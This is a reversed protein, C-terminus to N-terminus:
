QPQPPQQAGGEPQLTEMSVMVPQVPMGPRVRMLGNVIVTEGAKLGSLIVRLGQDVKGLTVPRYAVNGDEITYVFKRDQDTGVASDHILTAAQKEAGGLRIRAFLGPTLLGDKNDFEARVRITGSQPELRNDFSRIRGERTFETEDALAMYVPMQAAKDDSRVQKIVRLYTQEDMDFDAYVADVSQLTTLVSMGAMVTNGATIDARGVRGTIPARVESYEIDLRALTLAAKASKMSADAAHSANIKEDYEKQSVAKEDLLKKARQLESSALNSRATAATLDAEARTLNARFSRPDISFLKDGKQVVDGEKFLVEDITGTVRPRIEVDEAAKLRGSFESWETIEREIVLGASIPMAQPPGGAGEPAAAEAKFYPMALMASGAGLFVAATFIILKNKM